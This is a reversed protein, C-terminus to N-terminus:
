TYKPADAGIKYTGMNGQFIKKKVFCFIPWSILIYNNVYLSTGISM